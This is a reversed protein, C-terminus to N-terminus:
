LPQGTQALGDGDLQDFEDESLFPNEPALRLEAHVAARLEVRVIGTRVTTLSRDDLLKKRVVLGSGPHRSTFWVNLTRATSAASDDGDSLLAAARLFEM